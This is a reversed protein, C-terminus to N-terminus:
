AVNQQGVGGVGANEGAEKSIIPRLSLGFRYGGVSRRVPRQVDNLDGPATAPRQQRRGPAPRSAIRELGPLLKVVQLLFDAALQAVEIGAVLFLATCLLLRALLDLRQLGFQAGELITEAFKLGLGLRELREVLVDRTATLLRGQKLDLLGHRQSTLM